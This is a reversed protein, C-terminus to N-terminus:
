GLWAVLLVDPGDEFGDNSGAFGVRERAVHGPGIRDSIPECASMFDEYCFEIALDETSVKEAWVLEAGGRM